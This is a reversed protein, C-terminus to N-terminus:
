NSLKETGKTRLIVEKQLVQDGLTLNIIIIVMTIINTIIIIIVVMINTVFRLLLKLGEVCVCLIYIYIYIESINSHM